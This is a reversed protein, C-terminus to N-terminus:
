TCYLYLEKEKPLRHMEELVRNPELRISGRIRQAKPDYYGHSRVDVLLNKEPWDPRAMKQLLEEATVRQGKRYLRLRRYQRFRQVLYILFGAALLLLIGYHLSSIGDLISSVLHSFFYGAGFYASIYLFAGVGDLGLFDRFRMNLSGALPTTLLSMGPIFRAFLLAQKGRRYFSEASKFICNEPSATLRCVMGLIAWGSYRGALFLLTDGALMATLSTALVSLPDLRGFRAAAGATILIPASPIPFGVAELFLGGLLIWYGFQQFLSLFFSM